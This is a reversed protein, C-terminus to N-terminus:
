REDISDGYTEIIDKLLMLLGAYFILARKGTKEIKYPMLRLWHIIEHFYISRVREYSFHETMYQHLRAHLEDYVSSKTYMFQIKNEECEVNQTAMLFEYGGHISQLLKGYDLNPSDHVNGTNPDIFYYDPAGNASCNCIINEITLDGHITAYTDNHFVRQLTEESLYKEYAQLNPYEVGNIQVTEYELLRSIRKSEKIKTLNKLVKSSYYKHITTVDANRVNRQYITTELDELALRIIRWGDEAPVSHVYEFLGTAGSNFPMDYYCYVDNHDERLIQPVKILGAHEKLWCIQQYLKKGDEGFAYKRFFTTRGDTCLMTTANSGASYDRIISINQNIKLYNSVYERNGGSFYLELFDLREKPNIHPLLNIYNNKDEENQKMKAAVLLLVVLPLLMYAAMYLLHSPDSYNEFVPILFTSMRIGNQTFLMSFVDIWSINSGVSSLFEGYMYYSLLYMVWMGVTSVLFKGTSIKRVIDKINSILAWAFELLWAEINDNFISALARAAKKLYNRFVYLICTGLLITVAIFTYFMASEMIAANQYGSAFFLAFIAGVCIIDLYRDIIVTSFSLSYKNKLSKGSIVARVIDGLKYPLVYNLMYGIALAQTLKKRPPKEYVEIFLTWRFVRLLHALCILLIAGFLYLLKM